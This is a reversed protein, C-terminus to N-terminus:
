ASVPMTIPVNHTPASVSMTPRRLIMNALM